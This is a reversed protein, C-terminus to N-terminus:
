KGGLRKKLRDHIDIILPGDSSLSLAKKILQYAEEYRGSRELILALERIYDSTGSKENVIRKIQSNDINSKLSIYPSIDLGFAEALRVTHYDTTQADLKEKIRTQIYENLQNNGQFAKRAAHKISYEQAASKSLGKQIQNRKSYNLFDSSSCRLVATKMHKNSSRFKDVLDFYLDISIINPLEIQKENSQDSYHQLHEDIAKNFSKADRDIVTNLLRKLELASSSYGTNIPKNNCEFHRHEEEPIGLKELFFYELGSSKESYPIYPFIYTHEKNYISEWPEFIKGSYQKNNSGLIKHCHSTLSLTLHHRKVGQSYSSLVREMPDRFFALIATKKINLVGTLKEFSDIHYVFAESSLLLTKNKKAAQQKYKTFLDHALKLNNDKLATYLDSHGGSVNNSDVKHEPYFYGYEELIDRNNLLFNQLASTGTKSPGIHLIVEHDSGIIGGKRLRTNKRKLIDPFM